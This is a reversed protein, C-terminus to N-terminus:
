KLSIAHNEQKQLYEKNTWDFTEEEASHTEKEKRLVSLNCDQGTDTDKFEDPYCFM